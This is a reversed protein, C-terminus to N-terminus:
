SPGSGARNVALSKPDIDAVAVVTGDDLEIAEAGDVLGFNWLTGMHLVGIGMDYSVRAVTDSYVLPHRGERLRFLVEDDVHITITQAAETDNNDTM